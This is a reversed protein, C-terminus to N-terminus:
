QTSQKFIAKSEMEESRDVCLYSTLLELWDKIVVNILLHVRQHCGTHPVDM